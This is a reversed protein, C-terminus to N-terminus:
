KQYTIFETAYKAGREGRIYEVYWTDDIEPKGTFTRLEHHRKVRDADVETEKRLTFTEWDENRNVEPFQYAIVVVRVNLKNGSLKLLSREQDARLWIDKDNVTESVVYINETRRAYAPLQWNSAFRLFRLRRCWQLFRKM